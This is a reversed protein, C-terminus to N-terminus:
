VGACGAMGEGNGHRVGDSVHGVGLDRLLHVLKDVRKAVIRHYYNAIKRSLRMRFM